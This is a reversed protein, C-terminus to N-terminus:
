DKRTLNMTRSKNWGSETEEYIAWKVSGDKKLIDHKFRLQQNSDDLYSEVIEYQDPGTEKVKMKSSSIGEPASRRMFVVDFEDELPSYVMVRKCCAKNDATDHDVILMSGAEDFSIQNSSNTTNLIEGNQYVQTENNWNGILFNLQKDRNELIAIKALGAEMILDDQEHDHKEAIALSKEIYKVAEDKKDMELLVDSFSDYPNAEQPYEDIQAQFLIKAAELDNEEQMLRYALINLPEDLGQYTPNPNNKQYNELVAEVGNSKYVQYLEDVSAQVQEQANMSLMLFFLAIAIGWTIKFKRGM